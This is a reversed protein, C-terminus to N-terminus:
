GTPRLAQAQCSPSRDPLRDIVPAETRGPSPRRAPTTLPGSTSCRSTTTLFDAM